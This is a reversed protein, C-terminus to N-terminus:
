PLQQFRVNTPIVGGINVLIPDRDNNRGAYKVVGDMNTDSQMYGTVFNTPVMGGIDILIPERDNATGTYRLANDRVVNGMWLAHRGDPLQARADEGWTQQSGSIMDVLTGSANVTVPSATMAGLHNRHRVAVHYPGAPINFLLRSGGAADVVDGDRQLLAPRAAVINAPNGPARLEVLVWDVIANQGTVALLGPAIVDGGGSTIMGLGTYPEVAPILGAARLDDRMLGGAPNRAGQLFMRVQVNPGCDEWPALASGPIVTRPGGNFQWWLAVHNGGEGQKHLVEVYYYAGAQLQVTQSAQTPFKDFEEALTWGPV